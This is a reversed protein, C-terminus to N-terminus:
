TSTVYHGSVMRWRLSYTHTLLSGGSYPKTPVVASCQGRVPVIKDTFEPLLTSTYANTAFVVKATTVSGRGTEVIWNGDGSPFVSVVPTNTQLNLSFRDICLRLLSTVLKYPWFSSAPYEVAAHAYVCRTRRKAEQPDSIWDIIGDVEGGDAAFEQLAAHFGDACPQNLAVDPPSSKLSMFQVSYGTDPSGFSHGRWLDCNIKEEEVIQTLLALTEKL